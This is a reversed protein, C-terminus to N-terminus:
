KLWCPVLLDQAGDFEGNVRAVVGGFSNKRFVVKAKAIVSAIDYLSEKMLIENSYLSM